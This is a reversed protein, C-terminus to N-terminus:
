YDGIMSGQNVHPLGHLLVAGKEVQEEHHAEREVGRRGVLRGMGVWQQLGPAPGDEGLEPTQAKPAHGLVFLTPHPEANVIPYLDVIPHRPRRVRLFVTDEALGDDGQTRSAVAAHVCAGISPDAEVAISGPLTHERRGVARGPVDAFQHLCRAATHPCGRIQARQVDTGRPRRQEGSLGARRHHALLSWICLEM